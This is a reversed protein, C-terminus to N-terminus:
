EAIARHSKKEFVKPKYKYVVKVRRRPEIVNRKELSSFHDRLLNGEPKLLRLSNVQEDSLKLEINPEEYKVRGLRKTMTRSKSGTALQRRAARAALAMEHRMVDKKIAKLRLVKSSRVKDEKEKMAEREKVKLAKLRKREQETKKDERRVPPNHSVQQSETENDDDGSNEDKIESDGTWETLWTNENPAEATTPFKDDLARKLRKEERIHKREQEAAKRLLEKHDDVTPRYSTGPHPIEVAPLDSPKQLYYSPPKIRKKKCVELFHEDVGAYQATVDNENWLDYTAIPLKRKQSPQMTTPPKATRTITNSRLSRNSTQKLKAPQSTRAPPIRPDLQLAAHCRLPKPQRRNPKATVDTQVTEDLGRDVIFLEADAKDAVLGGTREQLRQDELFTEVDKIDAHKRWSKKTKKSVRKRKVRKSNIGDM